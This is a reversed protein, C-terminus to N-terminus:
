GTIRNLRESEEGVWRRAEEVSYWDLTEERVAYIGSAALKDEVAQLQQRSEGNWCEANRHHGREDKGVNRGTYDGGRRIEGGQVVKREGVGPGDHQGRTDKHGHEEGGESAVGVGRHESGPVRSHRDDAEQARRKLNRMTNEQQEEEWDTGPDSACPNHLGEYPDDARSNSRSRTGTDQNGTGHERYLATLERSGLTRVGHNGLRRTFGGLVGGSGGLRRTSHPVM